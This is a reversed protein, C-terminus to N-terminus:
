VLKVVSQETRPYSNINVGVIGQFIEVLREAILHESFLREAFGAIAMPDFTNRCTYVDQMCVALSEVDGSFLRGMKEDFLHRLANNNRGICPLGTMWAEVFPVGFTEYDSASVYCDSERLLSAVDDASKWGTIEVKDVLSLREIQHQLENRLPGDGVILLRAHLVSSVIHFAELIYDFHKNKVLRGVAIYTYPPRVSRGGDDGSSSSPQFRNNPRFKTDSVMNPIVAIPSAHSMDGCAKMVSAKLDESVCCFRTSESVLKKLFKVDQNSIELKQVKSWHEMCVLPIQASKLYDVFAPTLTLLPFHAYVLDPVQNSYVLKELLALLARTKIVSFVPKPIGGIPVTKGLVKVNDIIKDCSEIRRNVKVSQNDSYCFIVDDVLKSLAVAQAFEFHGCSGNIRPLSRGIVMIRM